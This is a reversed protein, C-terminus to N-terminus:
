GKLIQGDIYLAGFSAVGIITLLLTLGILVFNVIMITKAIQSNQRAGRYDSIDLCSKTKNSFIIGVVGLIGLLINSCCLITPGFLIVTAVVNPVLYTPIGVYGSNGNNTTDFNNKSHYPDFNSNENDDKVELVDVKELNNDNQIERGDHESKNEQNQNPINLNEEM